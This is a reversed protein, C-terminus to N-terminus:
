YAKPKLNRYVCFFSLGVTLVAVVFLILTYLWPYAMLNISIIFNGNLIFGSSPINVTILMVVFMIAFSVAIGIYKRFSKLNLSATIMSYLMIFVLWISLESWVYTSTYFEDELYYELDNMGYMIQQSLLIIGVCILSFVTLAIFFIVADILPYLFAYAARRKTTLPLTSALNPKTYYSTNTYIFIAVALLLLYMFFGSDTLSDNLFSYQRNLLIIAVYVAICPAVGIRISNLRLALKYNLYDKFFRM